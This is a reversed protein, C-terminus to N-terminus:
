NMDGFDVLLADVAELAPRLLLEDLARGYNRLTVGFGSEFRQGGGDQEEEALESL